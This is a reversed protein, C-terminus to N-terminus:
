ATEQGESEGALLARKKSPQAGGLAMIAKRYPNDGPADAARRVEVGVRESPVRQSKTHHPRPVKVPKKIRHESASVSTLEVLQALLEHYATWPERGRDAVPTRVLASTPLAKILM